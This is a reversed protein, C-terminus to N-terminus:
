ETRGFNQNDTPGNAPRYESNNASRWWGLGARTERKRAPAAGVTRASVTPSFDLRRWM